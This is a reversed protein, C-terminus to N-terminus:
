KIRNLAFINLSETRDLYPVESNGARRSIFIESFLVIIPVLDNIRTSELRRVIMPMSGLCSAPVFDNFSGMRGIAIRARRNRQSILHTTFGNLGTIDIQWQAFRAAIVRYLRSDPGRVSISRERKRGVKSDTAM